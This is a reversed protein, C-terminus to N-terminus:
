EVVLNLIKHLYKKPGAEFYAIYKRLVEVHSEQQTNFAKSDVFSGSDDYLSITMMKTNNQFLNLTWGGNTKKDKFVPINADQREKDTM